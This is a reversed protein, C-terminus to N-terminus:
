IFDLIQCPSEYSHGGLYILGMYCGVLCALATARAKTTNINLPDFQIGKEIEATNLFKNINRDLRHSCAQCLDENKLIYDLITPERLANAWEPWLSLNPTLCILDPLYVWWITFGFIYM